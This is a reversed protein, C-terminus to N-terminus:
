LDGGLVALTRTTSVQKRGIAGWMDIVIVGTTGFFLRATFALAAHEALWAVRHEAVRFVVWSAEAGADGVELLPFAGLGGEDDL